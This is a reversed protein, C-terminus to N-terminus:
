EGEKNRELNFASAIELAQEHQNSRRAISILKAVDSGCEITYSFDRIIPEEPTM